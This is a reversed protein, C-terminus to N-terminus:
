KVVKSKLDQIEKLLKAYNADLQDKLKNELGPNNRYVLAGIAFGVLLALAYFVYEMTVEM